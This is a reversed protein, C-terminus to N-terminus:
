QAYVGAAAAQAVAAEAQANAQAILAQERLHYGKWM